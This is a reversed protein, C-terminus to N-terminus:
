SVLKRKEKKEIEANYEEETKLEPIWWEPDFRSETCEGGAQLYLRRNSVNLDVVLAFKTPPSLRDELRMLYEFPVNADYANLRKGDDDYFYVDYLM